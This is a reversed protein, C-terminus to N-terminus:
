GYERPTTSPVHLVTVVTPGVRCSSSFFLIKKEPVPSEQACRVLWTFSKLELLCPLRIFMKKGWKWHISLHISSNGLQTLALCAGLNMTFSLQLQCATDEM